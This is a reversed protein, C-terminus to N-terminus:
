QAKHHDRKNNQNPIQPAACLSSTRFSVLSLAESTSFFFSAAWVMAFNKRMMQLSGPQKKRPYQPGKRPQKRSLDKPGEGPHKEKKRGINGEKIM